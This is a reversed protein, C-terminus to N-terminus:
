LFLLLFFCILLYFGVVNRRFVNDNLNEELRDMSEKTTLPFMRFFQDDVDGAEPNASNISLSIITRQIKHMIEIVSDLKAEMRSVQKRSDSGIEIVDKSPSYGNPPGLHNDLSHSSNEDPDGDSLDGGNDDFYGDKNVSDSSTGFRDTAVRRRKVTKASIFVSFNFHFQSNSFFRLLFSLEIRFSVFRKCNENALM